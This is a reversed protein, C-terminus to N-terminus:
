GYMGNLIGSSLHLVTMDYQRQEAMESWQHIIRLNALCWQKRSSQDNFALGDTLLLYGQYRFLPPGLTQSSISLDKPRVRAMVPVQQSYWNRAYSKAGVEEFFGPSAGCSIAGVLYWELALKLYLPRGCSPSNAFFLDSQLNTIAKEYSAPQELM